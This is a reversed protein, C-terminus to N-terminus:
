LVFRDAGSRVRPSRAGDVEALIGVARELEEPPLTFPLRVFRELVGSRGFRPGPTLYVGHERARNAIATSSPRPLEAWLALGGRPEVFRWHPVLARLAAGLAQRRLLAGARRDAVLDDLDDLARVAVLQDLVPTGVDVGARAFALRQVTVADARLWGIRLGGWFSKSLSGITVVQGGFSAFPPPMVSGDLALEAFTEDVVVTCGTRALGRAARRRTPEDMLAGTPNHFDPVLYALAPQQREALAVLAEVDWGESSVPAGHARMGAAAFADLAAPYAPVEVLAARGRRGYARLVLDLAQLAGNTVLISEPRTPLGRRAYRRAIAERLAPLGLPEYGHGDLLRGLDAVADAALEQLRPPAAPAAVRLDIGSAPVFQDDGVRGSRPLSVYSGAGRRSRLYGEGRLRNYASTVTTRSVGLAAALAREAPLPSELPVRGDLILGRLTAALEEQAPRSGRWGGLLEVM